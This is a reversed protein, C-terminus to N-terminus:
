RLTWLALLVGVANFSTHLVVSPMIRHTRYYLGGLVVALLFLPIPDVVANEPFFFKTAFLVMYVPVTVVLFALLGLALDSPLKQPVLGLDAWTAESALRVWALTLGVALLCAVARVCILFILTDLEMRPMATRFHMAAFLLATVGIPIAGAPVIRIAPWQRRSRREVKELWGQLLLRFLVEEAIPAIVVALAACVLIAWLHHSELLVRALPHSTDLESQGEAPVTVNIGLWARAVPGVCMPMAFYLSMAVIVDFVGWPVPRRTQYSLISLGRKV